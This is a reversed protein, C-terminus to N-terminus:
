HWKMTSLMNWEAVTVPLPPCDIRRALDPQMLVCEVLKQYESGYTYVLHETSRENIVRPVKLLAKRLFARFDEIKWVRVQTM